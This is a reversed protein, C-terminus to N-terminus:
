QQQQQQQQQQLHGCTCPCGNVHAWNLMDTAQKKRYQKNYVDATYDACKWNRWGSGCAIAWQVTALSWCQKVTAGTINIYESAFSDPWRAGRARLWQVAALRDCSAALIILKSTTELSWPNTVTALWQLMPVSGSNSANLLVVFETCQCNSSHLLQLLGLRGFFAANRCIVNDWPVGQGRLVTIVQEPELSYKRILEACRHQTVDLETVDFGKLKAYQLRSESMISSRYRTLCKRDQAAITSHGCHQLYRGRWRRSVGGVYLHDGGGVYTFVQDLIDDKDLPAALEISSSSSSSSSTVCQRKSEFGAVGATENASSRKFQDTKLSTVEEKLALL